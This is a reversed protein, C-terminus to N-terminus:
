SGKSDLLSQMNKLAKCTQMNKLAKCTQMNAHKEISLVKNLTQLHGKKDM